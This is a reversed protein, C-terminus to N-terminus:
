VLRGRSQWDFSYLSGAVRCSAAVRCDPLPSVPWVGEDNCEFKIWNLKKRIPSLDVCQGPFLQGAEKLCGRCLLRGVIKGSLTVNLLM